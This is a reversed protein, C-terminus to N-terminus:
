RPPDGKTWGREVMCDLFARHALERRNGSTAAARVEKSVARCAVQDDEFDEHMANDRWWPGPLGRESYPIRLAFDRPAPEAPAEVPAPVTPQPEEGCGVLVCLAFVASAAPLSHM